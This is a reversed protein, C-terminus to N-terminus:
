EAELGSSIRTVLVVTHGLSLLLLLFRRIEHNHLMFPFHGEREAQLGSSM